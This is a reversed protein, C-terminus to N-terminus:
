YEEYYSNSASEGHPSINEIRRLYQASDLKCVRLMYDTFYNSEGIDLSRLNPFYSLFLKLKQTELVCSKGMKARDAQEEYDDAWKFQVHLM